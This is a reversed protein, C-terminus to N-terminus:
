YIFKDINKEKWSQYVQENAIKYGFGYWIYTYEDTIDGTLEMEIIMDNYEDKEIIASFDIYYNGTETLEIEALTDLSCEGTHYKELIVDTKPYKYRGNEISLNNEFTYEPVGYIFVKTSNSNNYFGEYMNISICVVDYKDVTEKNDRLLFDWVEINGTRRRDSGAEAVINSEYEKIYPIKYNVLWGKEDLRNISMGSPKLKNELFDIRKYTNSSMKDDLDNVLDATDIVMDNKPSWNPIAINIDLDESKQIIKYVRYNDKITFNTYFSSLSDNNNQIDVSPNEITADYGQTKIEESINSNCGIAFVILFSIILVYGKRKM